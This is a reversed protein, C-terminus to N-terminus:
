HAMDQINALYAVMKHDLDHPYAYGLATGVDVATRRFLDLTEFLARWNDDLAPGAYTREFAAWVLVPLVDQPRAGARGAALGLRPRDRRAM